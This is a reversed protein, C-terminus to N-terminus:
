TIIERQVPVATCEAASLGALLDAQVAPDIILRKESRQGFLQRKFCELQTKLQTNKTELEGLRSQLAAFSQTEVM